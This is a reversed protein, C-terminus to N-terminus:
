RRELCSIAAQPTLERVASFICCAGSLEARDRGSEAIAAVRIGASTASQIGRRSDEVALLSEKPLGSRQAALLYLDPLPKVQGQVEDGGAILKADFYGALSRAQLFIEIWERPANSM